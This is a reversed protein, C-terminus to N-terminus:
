NKMQFDQSTNNYIICICTIGDYQATNKLTNVDNDILNSHIQGDIVRSENCNIIEIRM